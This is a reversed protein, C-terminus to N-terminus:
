FPVGLAAAGSSGLQIKQDSLFCDSSFKWHSFFEEKLLKLHFSFSEKWFNWFVVEEFGEV